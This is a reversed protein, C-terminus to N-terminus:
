VQSNFKNDKNILYFEEYLCSWLLTVMKLNILKLTYSKLEFIFINFSYNFSSLLSLSM